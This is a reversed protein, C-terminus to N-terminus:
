VLKVPIDYHAFVPDATLAPLEETAAIAILMRDYPDRHHLPLRRYAEVHRTALPLIHFGQQELVQIYTSDIEIKGLSQKIEIEWLSVVSIVGTTLPDALTQKIEKPLRPADDLWWLM